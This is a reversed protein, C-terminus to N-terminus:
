KQVIMNYVEIVDAVDDSMFIILSGIIMSKDSNLENLFLVRTNNYGANSFDFQYGGSVVELDEKELDYYEKLKELLLEEFTNKSDQTYYYLRNEMDQQESLLKELDKETFENM